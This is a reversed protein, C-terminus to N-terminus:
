QLVEHGGREVGIKQKGGVRQLWIKQCVRGGGGGWTIFFSRDPESCSM